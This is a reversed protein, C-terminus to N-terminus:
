KISSFIAKATRDSAGSNGLKDRLKKYNNILEERYSPTLLKELEVKLNRTNLAGQILETVVPADM